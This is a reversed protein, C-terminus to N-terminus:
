KKFTSDSKTGFSKHSLVTIILVAGTNSHFTAERLYTKLALFLQTYVWLNIKIKKWSEPEHLM